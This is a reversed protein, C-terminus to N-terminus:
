RILTVFGSLDGEAGTLDYYNVVWFYVGDSCISGNSTGDWGIRLDTTEYLMQGWRNFIIITARGVNEVIIPDFYDNIGDNNPTFVNPMEILADCSIFTVVITDTRSGCSDTVEVWYTGEETVNYISDTSNDQWMYSSNFTTANLILNQRLCLTTDNGLDLVGLCTDLSFNDIQVWNSILGQQRVTIYQGSIPAVFTFTRQNWVGNTAPGPATYILSGFSSSTNSLGIEIPLAVFASFSKEYYSITHTSGAALSTTLLMALMDTGGGTLAVYWNGSQPGVNYTPSTIIDLNGTSGFGINNLMISNFQPNSLNIQDGVAVNNEFDGNLFSQSLCSTSLFFIFVCHFYRM